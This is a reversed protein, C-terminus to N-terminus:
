NNYLVNRDAFFSTYDIDGVTNPGNKLFRGHNDFQVPYMWIGKNIRANKVGSGIDRSSVMYNAWVAEACTRSGNLKVSNNIDNMFLEALQRNALTIWMEGIFTMERANYRETLQYNLRTAVLGFHGVPM